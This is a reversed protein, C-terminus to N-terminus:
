PFDQVVPVGQRMRDLLPFAVFPPVAGRDRDAQDEGGFERSCGAPEIVAGRVAMEEIVAWTIETETWSPNATALAEIRPTWYSREKALVELVISPNSTAGTAGRAVAYELEELACSDNWYDTPRGTVTRLM